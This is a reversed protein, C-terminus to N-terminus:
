PLQAKLATVEDATPENLHKESDAIGVAALVEAAKVPGVGHVALILDGVEIRGAEKDGTGHHGQDLVDGFTTKGVNVDSKIQARAQRAHLAAELAAAREEPTNAPPTPGM